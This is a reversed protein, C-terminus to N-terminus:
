PSVNSGGAAGVYLYSKLLASLLNDPVAVLQLHINVAVILVSVSPSLKLQDVVESAVKLLHLGESGNRLGGRRPLRGPM